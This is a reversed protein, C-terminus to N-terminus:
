ILHALPAIPQKKDVVEHIRHFIRWVGLTVVPVEHFIQLRAGPPYGAQGEEIRVVQRYARSAAAPMERIVQQLRTDPTVASVGAAIRIAAQHENLIRLRQVRQRTPTAMFYQKACAPM